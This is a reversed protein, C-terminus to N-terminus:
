KNYGSIYIFTHKQYKRTKLIKVVYIRLKVEPRDKWIEFLIKTRLDDSLKTKYKHDENKDM